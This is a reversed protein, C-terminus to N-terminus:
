FHRWLVGLYFSDLSAFQLSDPGATRSFASTVDFEKEWRLVARSPLDREPGKLTLLIRRRGRPRLPTEVRIRVSIRLRALALSPVDFYRNVQRSEVCGKRARLDNRLDDYHRQELM